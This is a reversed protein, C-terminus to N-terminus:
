RKKNDTALQGCAGHIDDGMSKRTTCHIGSKRLGYQFRRVIKESSSEFDGEISNYRILNVHLLQLSGISRLFRSLDRIDVESDNVDKLLIYEIFVKRKSKTFYKKLFIRIQDLDYMRNVPMYEGRKTNNAFHLSIALNIQPFDDVFKQMGKVIGSTSVSINRRGFDFLDEDILINLSDKVNKWNLFPEGMGMYVINSFSGGLEKQKLYQKWFLVQSVIEDSSLDRVFGCKGTACFACGLSCGVQSSICASWTDEKPSLLVTELLKGDSLKLVAKHARGDKSTLVRVKSFPLIELNKDLFVRLDKSITSIDLFSSKAEEFVAKYIQKKRFSKENKEILLKELKQIDM